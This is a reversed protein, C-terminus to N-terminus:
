TLANLRHIINYFIYSYLRTENRKQEGKQGGKVNKEEYPIRLAHGPPDPAASVESGRWTRSSAVTLPCKQAGGPFRGPGNQLRSM